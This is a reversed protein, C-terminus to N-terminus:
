QSLSVNVPQGPHLLPAINLEPIAEVMFVLKSRTENSYIIPPTYEANTAIYSIHALISNKKGDLSVQIADGVKINSIMTEPVFFRIKIKNPPLLQIVPSGASIWEGQRFLTDYILGNDPARVQKQALDWRAQAVKAEAAKVTARQAVIKDEREPLNFVAIQETLEVVREASAKADARSNELEQQSIGGKKILEENRRLLAATNTAEAKAQNLQAQAMAVEEPRKGTLMDQLLGSAAILEQEAQQLAYHEYEADLEFLLTNSKVTKGREILLTNLRGSRSSALYVFEGEIYGQFNNQKPEGCGSLFIAMLILCLIRYNKEM